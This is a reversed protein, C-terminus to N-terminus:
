CAFKIEVVTDSLEEYLVVVMIWSDDSTVSVSVITVNHVEAWDNVRREIEDASSQQISDYIAFSKIRRM